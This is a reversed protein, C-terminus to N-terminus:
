KGQIFRLAEDFSIGTINGVTIAVWVVLFCFLCIMGGWRQLSSTPGGIPHGHAGGGAGNSCEDGGDGGGDCM